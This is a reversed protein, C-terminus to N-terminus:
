KIRRYVLTRPEKTPIREFDMGYLKKVQSLAVRGVEAATETPLTFMGIENIKLGKWERRGVKEVLM